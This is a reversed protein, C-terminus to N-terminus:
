VMRIIKTAKKVANGDKDVADVQVTEELREVLGRKVLANILANTKRISGFTIADIDYLNTDGKESIAKYLLKGDESLPKPGDSSEKLELPETKGAETISITKHNATKKNGEKDIVEVSKTSGTRVALGLKVLQNVLPTVSKEGVLESNALAHLEKATVDGEAKRLAEMVIITKETLKAM